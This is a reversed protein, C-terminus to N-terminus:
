RYSISVLRVTVNAPLACYPFLRALQLAEPLLEGHLGLNGIFVVLASLRQQFIVIRGYDLIIQVLQQVKWLYAFSSKNPVMWVCTDANFVSADDTSSYSALDIFKAFFLSSKM